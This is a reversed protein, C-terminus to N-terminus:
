LRDFFEEDLTHFVVARSAIGLGAELLREVLPPGCLIEMPPGEKALESRAEPSLPQPAILLGGSLRKAVVGARLEGVGRRDVPKGGARAGILSPEIQGPGLGTAYSSGDVRKIWELETWGARELLIEALIELKEAGLAALRHSLAVRAEQELRVVAARLEPSEVRGLSLRDRGRLLVPPSLQSRAAAAEGALVARRIRAALEDTEESREYRKRLMAALQSCPVAREGMDELTEAVQDLLTDAAAPLRERDGDRVRPRGRERDGDRDRDRDRDRGRGRSSRDGGESRRGRERRTRRGGRGRESKIAPLMQRDEDATQEDRYEARDAASSTGADEAYLEALEREEDTQPEIPRRLDEDEEDEIEEQDQDQDEDQDQDLDEAEDEGEDEDAAEATAPAGNSARGGRRRRRRRSRKERPAEADIEAAEAAEADAGEVEAAEGALGYVGEEIKVVRSSVGKKLEVSLRAKMASIPNGKSKGVLGESAARDALTEVPLPKGARRLLEIAADVFTM